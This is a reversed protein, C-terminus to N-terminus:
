KKNLPESNSSDSDSSSSQKLIKNEIPNDDESESDDGYNVVRSRKRINKKSIPSM